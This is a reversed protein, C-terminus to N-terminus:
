LERDGTSDEKLLDAASTVFDISYVDALPVEPM